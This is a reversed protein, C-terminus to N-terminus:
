NQISRLALKYKSTEIACSNIKYGKLTSIELMLILELTEPSSERLVDM